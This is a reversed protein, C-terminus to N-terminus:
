KQKEAVAILEFKMIEFGIEIPNKFLPKFFFFM